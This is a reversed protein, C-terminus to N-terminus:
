AITTLIGDDFEWRVSRGDMWEMWGDVWGDMWGDMRGDTMEDKSWRLQAAVRDANPNRLPNMKMWLGRLLPEPLWFLRGQQNQFQQWPHYASTLSLSYVM